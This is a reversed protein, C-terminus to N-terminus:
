SMGPLEDQEGMPGPVTRLPVGHDGDKVQWEGDKVSRTRMQLMEGGDAPVVTRDKGTGSVIGRREEGTVPSVWAVWGGFPATSPRPVRRREPRLDVDRGFSGRVIRETKGAASKRSKPLTAVDFLEPQVTGDAIGETLAALSEAHASEVEDM